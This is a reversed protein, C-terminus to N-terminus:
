NSHTLFEFVQRVITKKIRKKLIIFSGMQVETIQLHGQESACKLYIYPRNPFSFIM